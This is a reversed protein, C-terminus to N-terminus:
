SCGKAVVPTRPRIPFPFPGQTAGPGVHVGQRDMLFRPDGEGALDRALHVGAAVVAM